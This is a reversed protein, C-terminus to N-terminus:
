LTYTVSCTIPFHDSLDDGNADKALLIDCSSEDINPMLSSQDYFVYDLWKRTVTDPRMSKLFANEETDFTYTHSTSSLPIEGGNLLSLMTQYQSTNEYVENFDGGILVLEDNPINMQDVFQRLVGFQYQREEHNDGNSDSMTHTNFVHINKGDKQIKAYMVGKDAFVEPNPPIPGKTGGLWQALDYFDVFDTDIIPHKSYIAMGSGEQERKTSVHHCFGAESLGQKIEDKFSFIEQFLVVDEERSKYWDVIQAVRVARGDLEQCVPLDDGILCQILFLNHSIVKIQSPNSNSTDCTGQTGIDLIPVCISELQDIFFKCEFEDDCDHFGVLCPEGEQAFPQCTYDSACRGSQCDADVLCSYDNPAKGCTFDSGCYGTQCQSSVSCTCGDAGKGDSDACVFAWNCRGSACQSNYICGECM